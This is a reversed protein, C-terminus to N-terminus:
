FQRELFNDVSAYSFRTFVYFWRGTTLGGQIALIVPVFQQAHTDSSWMHEQRLWHTLKCMYNVVAYLQLLTM